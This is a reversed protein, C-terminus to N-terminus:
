RGSNSRFFSAGGPAASSEKEAWQWVHLSLDHTGDLHVPAAVSVTSGAAAGEAPTIGPPLEQRRAGAGSGDEVWADGGAAGASPSRANRATAKPEPRAEMKVGQTKGMIGM